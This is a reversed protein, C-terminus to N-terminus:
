NSQNSITILFFSRQVILCDFFIDSITKVYLSLYMYLCIYTTKSVSLYKYLYDSLHVSQCVSPCVCSRVSLQVSSVFLRVSLCFTSLFILLFVSLFVPLCISPRVSLYFAPLFFVSLCSSLFVFLHVVSLHVFLSFTLRVFWCVSPHVSPSISLCPFM